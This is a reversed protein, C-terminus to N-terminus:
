IAESVEAGHDFRPDSLPLVSMSRAQRAFLALWIGGLAVPL